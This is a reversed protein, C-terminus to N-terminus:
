EEFDIKEKKWLDRSETYHCIIVSASQLPDFNVVIIPKGKLNGEGCYIIGEKLIKLM